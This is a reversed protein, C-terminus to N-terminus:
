LAAATNSWRAEGDLGNTTKRWKGAVSPQRPSSISTGSYFLSATSPTLSPFLCSPHPLCHSSAPVGLHPRGIDFVEEPQAGAGLNM